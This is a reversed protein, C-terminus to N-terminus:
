DNVTASTYQLDADLQDFVIFHMPKDSTNEIIMTCKMPSGAVYTFQLASPPIVRIRKAEM